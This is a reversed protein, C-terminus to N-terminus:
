SVLVSQTVKEVIKPLVQMRLENNKAGLGGCAWVYNNGEDNVITTDKYAKEHLIVAEVAQEYTEVGNCLMWFLNMVASPRVLVKDELEVDEDVIMANVFDALQLFKDLYKESDVSDIDSRYLADKTSQGVGTINDPSVNQVFCISDAVWEDGKLRFKYNQGITSILLNAIDKSRQRVYSAWLSDFANRKEQRNLPVGSNVNTFVDSLGKYDIQVYESIVLQRENIVKQVLKPLKSFVNNHNGIVLQLIDDEIVYQYTGKPIQWEDKKLASLFKFRNNGDLTIYEIMQNYLNKFFSYARDEPALKELKTIALELDVLVFNGELRNMLLSQFYGKRDDKSWAEPRQFEEPAYSYQYNEVVDKLSRVKPKM